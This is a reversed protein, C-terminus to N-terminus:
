QSGGGITNGTGSNLVNTTNGAYSNSQVNVKSSAALLVIATGLNFFNNGTIVGGNLGFQQGLQIAIGLAAGNFSNGVITFPAYQPMLIGTAGSVQTIFLNNTVIVSAVPSVTNIGAVQCNFQCNSVALEDTGGINSPVQIGIPCGTFNCQSFCVGQSWERYVAGVALYSFFCNVFNFAVGQCNVNLGHMDVGTCALEVNNGIFSCNFFSIESVAFCDIAKGWCNTQTFGDSGRFTINSFSNPASNAPNPISVSTQNLFVAVNGANHATTITMDRMNVSNFAGLYNFQLGGFNGTWRLETIEQGAGILSVAGTASPFTYTVLSNFLYLGPPFYIVVRGAYQAASSLALSLAAANDTVGDGKGGYALISHFQVNLFHATAFGTSDTGQALNTGTASGAVTLNNVPLTTLTDNVVTNVNNLWDAPVPTLFDVFTMNTAM